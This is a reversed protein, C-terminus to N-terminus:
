ASVKSALDARLVMDNVARTLALQERAATPDSLSKALAANILVLKKLVLLELRTIEIKICDPESM